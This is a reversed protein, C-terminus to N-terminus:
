KITKTRDINITGEKMQVKKQKFAHQQHQTANQLQKNSEEITQTPRNIKERQKKPEEAPTDGSRERKAGQM